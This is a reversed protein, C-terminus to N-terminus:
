EVPHEQPDPESAALDAHKAHLGGGVSRRQIEMQNLMFHKLGEPNPCDQFTICTKTSATEIELLGYDFIKLKSLIGKERTEIDQIDVYEAEHEERHWISKWNIWVVRKNTIILRDMLYDVSIVALIVLLFCSAIGFMWLIAGTTVDSEQGILFIVVYVPIAVIAIKVLAFVYPTMHRKLVKVVVEGPRNRM